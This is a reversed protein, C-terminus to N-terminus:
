KRPVDDGLPHSDPATLSGKFISFQLGSHHRMGKIGADHLCLYTSRQIGPCSPSCLSVRDQFGSGGVLFICLQLEVYTYASM